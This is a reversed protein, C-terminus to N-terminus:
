KSFKILERTKGFLRALNITNPTIKSNKKAIIERNQSYINRDLKRGLLFEYNTTITIPNSPFQSIAYKPKQAEQEKEQENDSPEKKPTTDTLVYVKQEEGLKVSNIKVANVKKRKLSSVKITKSEDQCILTDIGSTILNQPEITTQGVEIQKIFYNDDLIVDTVKGLFKGLYTYANNNIPCPKNETNQFSLELNLDEDNKIIIADDSINYIDKVFLCREEIEENNDFLVIYKLRKFNNDFIAEKVVGEFKGDLINIVPKSIIKSIKLM